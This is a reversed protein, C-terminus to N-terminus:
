KAKPVLKKIAYKAGENATWRKFEDRMLVAADEGPKPQPPNFGVSKNLALLNLATLPAFPGTAKWDAGALAALIAKSEEAPITEEVTLGGYRSQRYRTLLAAAAHARDEAKDAKLAALADAFVPALKKVADLVAKNADSNEVPPSLGPMLHIAADPLKTLFLCVKQDVKLAPLQYRAAVGAPPLIFGVRVHTVNKAGHVNTEVKVVAVTYAVPDTAGPYPKAQVPEKEIETVTGIVCVGAVAARVEPPYDAMREARAATTLLLLALPAFRRM